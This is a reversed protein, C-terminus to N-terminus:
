SFHHKPGDQRAIGSQVTADLRAETWFSLIFFNRQGSSMNHELSLFLFQISPWNQWIAGKVTEKTLYDTEGSCSWKDLQYNSFSPVSNSIWKGVVICKFAANRQYM